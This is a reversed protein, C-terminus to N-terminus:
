NEDEEQDDDDDADNDQDGIPRLFHTFAWKAVQRGQRRAVVDSFRYHIGEYIRANVVDHAADSFRDYTRTQQLALPNTTTASFTMKDSRFFLKLMRTVAGTVNNAGSTYEPYNPTNILPQWNPDGVTFPNGDNDGEQIATVPRWFVYHRKTDWATIFADAMAMSVLAFLRASDGLNQVHAGALDRLVQNWLVMYNAAWFYALETQEPSRATSAFSGLDKVENYAHTYKGSTLAPPDKARFQSPSNLTFPTVTAAWPVLMPANSPPPGPLYSITPRWVGPDTGGNFDPPPPNPFSADGARLAIISAAAHQGVLVGPDREAIGNSSLYSHYTADHSAAQGPFHNTLVDHAAKAAAAAPSGSAGPVAFHFVHFRGDISEVADFMAAHMVALDLFGTAGPRLTGAALITQISISNWDAITDAHMLGSCILPGLVTLTLRKM